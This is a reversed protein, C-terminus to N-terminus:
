KAESGSYESIKRKIESDAIRGWKQLTDKTSKHNNVVTWFSQDLSRTVYYSGPIEPIEKINNRQELLIKLDSREWSMGKFAEVNSTTVRSVTGIISEVNNNYMLQTDGLTWWKLFEWAAEKNESSNLIACGTGAGAVTHNVTGDSNEVGPVLAIGWKGDIEPAAENLTTYLTYVDIGLPMTGTRFRNYFTATTPIKYETYMDTWFDFAKLTRESTFSTKSATEDYISGGFQQLISAFMNLGGVGTNVTSVATIQTYPLWANMNNRQLVSVAALYDNWTEPVKIGLSDLIDSRYFMIYFSQTDPLAYVGNKYKYPESASEGFRSIVSEYDNFNLLDYLAGRMALNVPETRALNLSLDPANGSIIGNVLTVNTIELNVDIGTKPIFDESILNNLVMAQDRGWNVWIKLSSANNENDASLKGYNATFSVAFRKIGFFLQEFWGTTKFGGESDASILRIQDLALPMSKMDYLWSSVTTYNTYYDSIYNQATYPNDIMSKIVRLMNNIASILSNSKNNNDARMNKATEDMSSYINTLREKLDPLQYFLDYDRNQDPSEGTIMTIDLYISGISSIQEQLLKYYDALSGLTCTLSLTHEGEELWFEYAGGEDGLIKKNWDTGYEFKISGCEKFPVRGDIKLQRYSIMNINQDQKFVTGIKYLGSKEVNFKWIVEEGTSKWSSGGIYNVLRKVASSPTIKASNNDTKPSLSRSTKLYADEAEIVVDDCGAASYKNEGYKKKVDEYASPRDPASLIIGSIVLDESCDSLTVTHEGAELYFCYPTDYVGTSDSLRVASLKGAEIQRPSFENGASDKRIKDANKWFRPLSINNCEEFPLAFDLALSLSIATGNQNMPCYELAINYLGAKNVMFKYSLTGKEAYVFAADEISKNESDTYAKLEGGNLATIQSNEVAIDTNAYKDPQNILYGSYSNATNLTVSHAPAATDVTEGFVSINVANCLIVSLTVVACIIKKKLSIVGDIEIQGDYLAIKM